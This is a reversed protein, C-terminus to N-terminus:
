WDGAILHEAIKAHLEPAVERLGGTRTVIGDNRVEEDLRRYWVVVKEMISGQHVENTEELDSEQSAANIVENWQERLLYECRLMVDVILGAFASALTSGISRGAGEWLQDAGTVRNVHFKVADPHTGSRDNSFTETCPDQFTLSWWYEPRTTDYEEIVVSIRSRNGAISFTPSDGQWIISGSLAPGAPNPSEGLKDLVCTLRAAVERTLLENSVELEMTVPFSSPKINSRVEAVYKIGNGPSLREFVLSVSGGEGLLNTLEETSPAGLGISVRVGLGDSPQWTSRSGPAWEGDQIEILEGSNPSYFPWDCTLSSESLGIYPFERM